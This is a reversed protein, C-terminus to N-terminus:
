QLSCKQCKLFCTVTKQRQHMTNSSGTNCFLEIGSSHFTYNLFKNLNEIPGISLNTCFNLFIVFCFFDPDLCISRSFLTRALLPAPLKSHLSKSHVIQFKTISSHSLLVVLICVSKNYFFRRQSHTPVPQVNPQSRVLTGTGSFVISALAAVHTCGNLRNHLDNLVCTCRREGILPLLFNSWLTKKLHTADNYM